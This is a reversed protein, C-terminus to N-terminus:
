LVSLAIKNTASYNDANQILDAIQKELRLHIGSTVVNTAHIKLNFIDEDLERYDIPYSLDHETLVYDINERGEPSIQNSAARIARETNYIKFAEKNFEPIKGGEKKVEVVPFIQTGIFDANTYGRALNTLVPDVIRKQKLTGDM